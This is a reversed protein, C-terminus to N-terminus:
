FQKFCSLNSKCFINQFYFNKGNSHKIVKQFVMSSQSSGDNKEQMNFNYVFDDNQNNTEQYTLQIVVGTTENSNTANEFILSCNKTFTGKDYTTENISIKITFTGDQQQKDEWM